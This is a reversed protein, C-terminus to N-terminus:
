PYLIFGLSQSSIFVRISVFRYVILKYGMSVNIGQTLSTQVFRKRSAFTREQLPKDIQFLRSSVYVKENRRDPYFLMETISKLSTQRFMYCNLVKELESCM